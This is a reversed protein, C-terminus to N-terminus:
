WGPSLVAYFAFTTPAPRGPLFKTEVASIMERGSEGKKIAM